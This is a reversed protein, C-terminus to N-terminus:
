RAESEAKITAYRQRLLPIQINWGEDGLLRERIAALDKARHFTGAGEQPRSVIKDTPDELSPWTRKFLDAIAGQLATYSSALTNTAEDIEVVKQAIIEGTDLGEDILHITVGKPTNDLFSWINPDAGRNYPLYSVHLNIFRNPLLSLVDKRLLHRYSYSVVLDPRLRLILDADVPEGTTTVQAYRGIWGALELSADNNTLFLVNM